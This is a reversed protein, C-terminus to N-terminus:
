KARNIAAIYAHDLDTPSVSDYFTLGLWIRRQVQYAAGEPLRGCVELEKKFHELKAILWERVPVEGYEVVLENLARECWGRKLQSMSALLAICDIWTETLRQQRLSKLAATIKLYFSQLGPPLGSYQQLCNNYERLADAEDSTLDANQEGLRILAELRALRNNLENV